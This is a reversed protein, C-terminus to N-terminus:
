CRHVLNFGLICPCSLKTNVIRLEFMVNLSAAYSDNPRKKEEPFFSFAFFVVLICWLRSPPCLSFLSATIIASSSSLSHIEM